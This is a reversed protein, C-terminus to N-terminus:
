ESPVLVLSFNHATRQVDARKRVVRLQVVVVLADDVHPEEDLLDPRADLCQHVGAEERLLRAEANSEGHRGEEVRVPLDLVGPVLGVLEHPEHAAPAVVLGLQGFVLGVGDALQPREQAFLVFAGQEHAVVVRFLEHAFHLGDLGISGEEPAVVGPAAGHAHIHVAGVDATGDASQVLGLVM